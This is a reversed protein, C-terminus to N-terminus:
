KMLVFTINTAFCGIRSSRWKREKMDAFNDKRLAEDPDDFIGIHAIFKLVATLHTFYFTVLKTEAGEKEHDKEDIEWKIQKKENM